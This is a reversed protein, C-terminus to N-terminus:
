ILAKAKNIEKEIDPYLPKLQYVCENIRDIFDTKKFKLLYVYTSEFFLRFTLFGPGPFVKDCRSFLLTIFLGWKKASSAQSKLYSIKAQQFDSKMLYCFGLNNYMQLNEYLVIAKDFDGLEFLSHAKLVLIERSPGKIENVADILSQFELEAFKEKLEYLDPM